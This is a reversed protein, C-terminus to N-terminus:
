VRTTGTPTDVVKYTPEMIKAGAQLPELSLATVCVVGKPQIAVALTATQGDSDRVLGLAAATCLNLAINM